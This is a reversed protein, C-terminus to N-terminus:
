FPEYSPKAGARQRQEGLARAVQRAARAIEQRLRTNEEQLRRRETHAAELRRLLSADTTRQAAPIPATPSRSTAERLRVIEDRIDPEAYLWSRSVGAFAAVAAFTVPAGTRDLERLAQVARARALEHRHRAAAIIPAANDPRM